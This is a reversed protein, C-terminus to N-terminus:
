ESCQKVSRMVGSPAANFYDVEFRGHNLNLSTISCNDIEGVADVSLQELIIRIFDRHTVVLLAKDDDAEIHQLMDLLRRARGAAMDVTEYTASKWWGDSDIEPPLQFDPFRVLIEARTLGPSSKNTAPYVGTYCGGQEHLETRVLTPVGLMRRFCDATQLARLFPSTWIEHVALAKSCQAAAAVQSAGHPTLSPDHHRDREPLVNSESEGHRVLLFRM